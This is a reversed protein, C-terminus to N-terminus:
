SGEGGERSEGSGKRGLVREVYAPHHHRWWSLSVYGRLTFQSKLIPWNIPAIAMIFHLPLGLYFLFAGIIHLLSMVGRWFDSLIKVALWKELTLFFGSFGVLALGVVVMWIWLKQLPHYFDVKPREPQMGLRYKVIGIFVEVDERTPIAAKISAPRVSFALAIVVGVLMLLPGVIDHLISILQYTPPSTPLGLLKGWGAFLQREGIKFFFALGTFFLLVMGSFLFLHALQTIPRFRLIEVGQPGRRVAESAFLREKVGM